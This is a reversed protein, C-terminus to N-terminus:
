RKQAAGHFREISVYFKVAQKRGACALVPQRAQANGRARPDNVNGALVVRVM